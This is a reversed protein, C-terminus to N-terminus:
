VNFQNRETEHVQSYNSYGEDYPLRALEAHNRLTEVQGSRRELHPM